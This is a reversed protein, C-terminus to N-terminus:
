HDITKGHCYDEEHKLKKRTKLVYLTILVTLAGCVDILVDHGSSHRGPTFSQHYEDSFAYLFALFLSLLFFVGHTEHLPKRGKLAYLYLAALVGFIFVHGAKKILNVALTDPGLQEGPISSLYFIFTM